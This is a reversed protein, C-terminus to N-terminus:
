VASPDALCLFAVRSTSSCSVIGGSLGAVSLAPEESAPFFRVVSLGYSLVSRDEVLSENEETIVGRCSTPGRYGSGPYVATDGMHKQTGSGGFVWVRVESSCGGHMDQNCVRLM